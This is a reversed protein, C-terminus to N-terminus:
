EPEDPRLVMVIEGVRVDPAGEVRYADPISRALESDKFRKLADASDWLYVAGHEGSSFKIYYKQRLGPLARYRESRARYTKMVDQDSLASKFRVIQVLM